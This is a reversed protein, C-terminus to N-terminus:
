PSATIIPTVQSPRLKLLPREVLLFTCCSYFILAPAYCLLLPSTGALLPVYGRTIITQANPSFALGFCFMLLLPHVLYISYSVTGLVRLPRLAFLARLKPELVSGCLCLAMGIGVALERESYGLWGQRLASLVGLVVLGSGMTFLGWGSWREAGTQGTKLSRVHLRDIFESCLVGLFFFKWLALERNGGREGLMLLLFVASAALAPRKYALLVFAPMVLYFLVEVYVSWAVPNLFHPYGFVRLMIIEALAVHLKVPYLLFITASIAIYLPYIRLLRRWFYSRLGELTRVGRLSRFILMGSLVAFVQVGYNGVTLFPLDISVTAFVPSTLQWGHFLAVWMAALGRFADLPLLHQRTSPLPMELLTSLRLRLRPVLCVLLLLVFGGTGWGLLPYRQAFNLLGELAEFVDAM